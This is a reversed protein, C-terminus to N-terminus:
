LSQTTIADLAKQISAVCDIATFGSVQRVHSQEGTEEIFRDPLAFRKLKVSSQSVNDCVWEAVASGLGGIISHEELTCVLSHASFCYQLTENDLPKVTHFSYLSCYIGVERLMSVMELAMGLANGTALLAVDEGEKLCIAKGIQFNEISKEHVLAEGKKGLRLYTPQRSKLAAQFAAAVEIADGACIVQMNPITRMIAIDEVAHHTPGNQAYSLGGGVGVLIVPLNHYGIDIRIQEFPRYILFTAITYVIPQLGALAMGAAMGIMNAEAVGCNIFQSPCREKLDDFLRNGIDGSLLVIDPDEQVCRTITKAFANRM